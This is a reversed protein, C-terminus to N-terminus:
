RHEPRLVQVTKASNEASLIAEESVIINNNHVKMCGNPLPHCVETGEGKCIGRKRMLVLLRLDNPVSNNTAM